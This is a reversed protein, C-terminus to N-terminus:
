GEDPRSVMYWPVITQDDALRALEFCYEVNYHEDENGVRAEGRDELVFYHM